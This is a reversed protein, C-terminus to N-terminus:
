TTIQGSISIKHLCCSGYQKLYYLLIKYPHLPPGTSTNCALSIVRVKKTIYNDGRLCFDELRLRTCEMVKIGKSMNEYYKTSIFLLGTLMDHKALFMFQPYENSGGRRLQELWYGCNINQPPIHFIDSKKLQLIGKKPKLIKM